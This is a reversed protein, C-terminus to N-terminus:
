VCVSVHAGACAGHLHSLLMKFILVCSSDLMSNGGSHRRITAAAPQSSRQRAPRSNALLLPASFSIQLQPQRTQSLQPNFKGLKILEAFGIRKVGPERLPLFPSLPLSFKIVPQLQEYASKLISNLGCTLTKDKGFTKDQSATDTNKLMKQPAAKRGHLAAVSRLRSRKKLIDRKTTRQCFLFICGIKVVHCFMIWFIRARSFLAAFKSYRLDRRM